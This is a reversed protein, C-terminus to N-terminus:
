IHVEGTVRLYLMARELLGPDKRLKAPLELYRKLLIESNVDLNPQALTERLVPLLASVDHARLLQEYYARLEEARRDVNPQGFWGTKPPFVLGRAMSDGFAVHAGAGASYRLSWRLPPHSHDSSNVEFSFRVFEKAQETAPVVETPLLSVTTRQADQARQMSAEEWSGIEEQTACDM